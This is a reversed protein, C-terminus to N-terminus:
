EIYFSGLNKKGKIPVAYYGCIGYSLDKNKIRENKIYEYPDKERLLKVPEPGNKHSWKGSKDQRIFHYDGEKINKDRSKWIMVFIKYYGYPCKQNKKLKKIKPNDKNFMIEVNKTTLDSFSKYYNWVSGSYVGLQPRVYPCFRDKYQDMSSLYWDWTDYVDSYKNKLEKMIKLKNKKSKKKYNICDEVYKPKITNMAYAYCNHSKKVFKSNWKGPEFKPHDPHKLNEEM